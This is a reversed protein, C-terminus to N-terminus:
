PGVVTVLLITCNIAMLKENGKCKKDNRLSYCIWALAFFMLAVDLGIFVTTYVTIDHVIKSAKKFKSLDISFVWGSISSFAIITLAGVVNRIVSTYRRAELHKEM